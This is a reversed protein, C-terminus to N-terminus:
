ITDNLLTLYPAVNQMSQLPMNLPPCAGWDFFNLSQTLLRFENKGFGCACNTYFLMIVIINICTKSLSIRRANIQVDLSKDDVLGCTRILFILYIRCQLYTTFM